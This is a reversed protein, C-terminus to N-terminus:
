ATKLQSIESTVIERVINKNRETYQCISEWLDLGINRSVEVGHSIHGVNTKSMTVTQQVKNLAQFIETNKIKSRIYM